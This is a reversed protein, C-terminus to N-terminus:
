EKRPSLLCITKNKTIPVIYGGQIGLHFVGGGCPEATPVAYECKRSLVTSPKLDNRLATYYASRDGGSNLLLEFYLYDHTRYPEQRWLSGVNSTPNIFKLSLSRPKVEIFGDGLDATTIPINIPPVKVTIQLDTKTPYRGDKFKRVRLKVRSLSRAPDSSTIVIADDCLTSSEIHHEFLLTLLHAMLVCNLHEKDPFTSWTDADSIESTYNNILTFHKTFASPDLMFSGVSSIIDPKDGPPYSTVTLSVKIYPGPQAFDLFVVLWSPADPHSSIRCPASFIRSTPDVVAAPSYVM